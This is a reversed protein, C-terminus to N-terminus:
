GRYSTKKRENELKSFQKLLERQEASIDTPTQLEVVM